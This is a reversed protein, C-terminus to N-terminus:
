RIKELALCPKEKFKANEIRSIMKFERVHSKSSWLM